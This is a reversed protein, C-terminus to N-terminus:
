PILEYSRPVSFPFDLPIDIDLKSFEIDAMIKKPGAVSNIKLVAPILGQALQTFNQYNVKLAQGAAADNLTLEQMKPLTNFLMRYVLGSENGKVQWVGENLQIDAQTLMLDNITNGVLIAQLWAFNVQPNTFTHVYSMPKRLITRQLRNM